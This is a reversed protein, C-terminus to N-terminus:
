SSKTLSLTFQIPFHDSFPQRLVQVDAIACNKHFIYDLQHKKVNLFKHTNELYANTYEQEQMLKLLGKRGFLSSYNLDGLIVMPTHQVFFESGLHQILKDLQKKRHHNFSFATLHTNALIFPRKRYELMTVLSSRAGTTRFVRKEYISGGLNIIQSAVIKVKKTRVLTLEGYTEGHKRFGSAFYFTFAKDSQFRYLQSYPFEQFCILDYSTNHTRLWEQIKPLRKGYCINYTLGLLM